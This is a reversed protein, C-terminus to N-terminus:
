SEPRRYLWLLGRPSSNAVRRFGLQQLQDQVPMTPNFTSEPLWLLVWDLPRGLAREYAQIDLDNPSSELDGLVAFPNVADRYVLPFYGMSAEYNNISFAGTSVAVRNIRHRFVDAFRSLPVGDDRIGGRHANIALVLDGAQLYQAAQDYEALQQQLNAYEPARLAAGLASIGLGALIAALQLRRASLNSALWLLAFMWIFPQIRFLMYGGGHMGNPSIVETDKMLLMMLVAFLAGVLLSWHAVPQRRWARLLIMAGFVAVCLALLAGALLEDLNYALLFSIAGTSGLRYALDASAAIPASERAMLFGATLLLAPAFALAQPLVQRRLMLVLGERQFHGHLRVLASPLMCIGAMLMAFLHAYFALVAILAMLLLSRLTWHGEQRLWYGAMWLSAGIGICYGYFGMHFTYNYAFPLALWAWPGADSSVARLAYRAGLPVAIVAFVQCITEAWGPGFLQLLGVLMFHFPWTPDFRESFGIWRAFEPSPSQWLELMLQANYVHAPGDQTALPGWILLPLVLLVLACAFLRAESALVRESFNATMIRTM